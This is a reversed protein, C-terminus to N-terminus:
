GAVPFEKNGRIVMSAGCVFSASAGTITALLRLNRKTALLEWEKAQHSAATETVATFTDGSVDSFNYQEVYGVVKTTASLTGWTTTYINYDGGSTVTDTALIICLSTSVDYDGTLVIHFVTTDAIDVPRTFAFEVWEYATGIASCLVSATADAHIATGSPNGVSDTELTVTVVKGAAITGLRKLKLFVKSIQRAGAQTIKASLKIATDAASRLKVDNDATAGSDDKSGRAVADSEQMKVAMSVGTGASSKASNLIVVCSDCAVADIVKSGYTGVVQTRAAVDFLEQTKVSEGLTNM